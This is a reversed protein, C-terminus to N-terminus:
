ALLDILMEKEDEIKELGVKAWERMEESSYPSSFVGRLEREKALLRRVANYADKTATEAENNRIETNM